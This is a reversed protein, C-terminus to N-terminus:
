VGYAVNQPRLCPLPELAPGTAGHQWLCKHPGTGRGTPCLTWGPATQMPAWPPRPCPPRLPRRVQGRAGAPARAQGPVQAHQQGEHVGARGGSPAGDPVSGPAASHQPARSVQSWNLTEYIIPITHPGCFGVLLVKPLGLSATEDCRQGRYSTIAGSRGSRFQKFFRRHLCVTWPSTSAYADPPQRVLPSLLPVLSLDRAALSCPM